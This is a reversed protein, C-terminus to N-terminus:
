EKQLTVMGDAVVLGSTQDVRVENGVLITKGQRVIVGNKGVWTRTTMDYELPDSDGSLSEAEIDQGDPTKSTAPSPEATQARASRTTWLACLALIILLFHM